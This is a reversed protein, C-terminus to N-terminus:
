KQSRVHRSGTEKSKPSNGKITAGADEDENSNLRNSRASNRGDRECNGRRSTTQMGPAQHAQHPEIFIIIGTISHPQKTKARFGFRLKIISTV